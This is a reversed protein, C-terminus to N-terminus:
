IDSINGIRRLVSDLWDILRDISGDMWGNMVLWGVLWGVLWEILWDIMRDWCSIWWNLIKMQDTEFKGEHNYEVLHKLM